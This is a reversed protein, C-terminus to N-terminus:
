RSLSNINEDFGQIYTDKLKLADQMALELRHTVCHTYILGAVIDKFRKQVGSRQGCRVAAGDFNVNM